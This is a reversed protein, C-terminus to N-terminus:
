FPTVGGNEAGVGSDSGADYTGYDLNAFKTYRGVWSLIVEGTEGNRHKLILIQRMTDPNYQISYRGEKEDDDQEKKTKNHIFMILDGDQEIAGSDRLDSLVPSGKRKEIDRTLQSLVIVPCDIEKAMQKLRRSIAAIELTRNEPRDQGTIEMLQLYDIVVLDLGHEARLRHCKSTMEDVSAGSTEDIFIKMDRFSDAADRYREMDDRSDFFSGSRINQLPINAMISMLRQGLPVEGMELSFFMVTAQEKIAANLAFNLALATKGMSPRAAIIILDKKQFGSTKEDLKTFGTTIGLLDRDSDRYEQTEKTAREIIDGIRTYDGKTTDQAIDFIGSQAKSLVEHAPKGDEYAEAATEEGYKILRRLVAKEKVIRAYQKAGSPSPAAYPLGSIYEAGGAFEFKGRKKLLESLTVVDVHDGERHLTGIVDFIEAHAARFFDEYKLAELVGFLADDNLIAAGLVSREADDSHPYEREAM